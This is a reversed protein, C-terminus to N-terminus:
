NFNKSIWTYKLMEISGDITDFSQCKKFLKSKLPLITALLTPLFEWLFDVEKLIFSYSLLFCILYSAM